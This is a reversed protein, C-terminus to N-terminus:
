VQAVNHLVTLHRIASMIDEQEKYSTKLYRLSDYHAGFKVVEQCMKPSVDTCNGLIDYLKGMLLGYEEM